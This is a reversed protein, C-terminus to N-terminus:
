INIELKIPINMTIVIFFIHATSLNSSGIVFDHANCTVM